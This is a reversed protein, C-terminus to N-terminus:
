LNCRAYKKSIKKDKLVVLERADDIIHRLADCKKCTKAVLYFNTSKMQKNVGCIVNM